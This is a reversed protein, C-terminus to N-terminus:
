FGKRRDHNSTTVTATDVFCIQKCFPIAGCTNIAIKFLFLKIQDYIAVPRQNKGNRKAEKEFKIRQKRFSLNFNNNNNNNDNNIDVNNIIGNSDHDRSKYTQIDKLMSIKNNMQYYIYYGWIFAILMMGAFVLADQGFADFIRFLDASGTGSDGAILALLIILIYFIVGLVKFLPSFVYTISWCQYIRICQMIVILWTLITFTQELNTSNGSSENSNRIDFVDYISEKMAMMQNSVNIDEIDMSEMISIILDTLDTIYNLKPQLINFVGLYEEYELSLIAENPGKEHLFYLANKNWLYYDLFNWLLLSWLTRFFANLCVDYSALEYLVRNKEEKNGEETETETEGKNKEEFGNEEKEKNNKDKDKAAINEYENGNYLDEFTNGKIAHEFEKNQDFQLTKRGNQFINDNHSYMNIDQNNPDNIIINIDGTKSSSTESHIIDIDNNINQTKLLSYDYFFSSDLLEFSHLTMSTISHYKLIPSLLWPLALIFGDFARLNSCILKCKNYFRYRLRFYFKFFIYYCIALTIGFLGNEIMAFIFTCFHKDENPCFYLHWDDWISDVNFNYHLMILFLLGFAGCIMPFYTAMIVQCKSVHRVNSHVAYQHGNLAGRHTVFRDLM